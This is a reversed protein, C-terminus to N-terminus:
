ADLILRVVRRELPPIAAVARMGLRVLRRRLASGEMVARRARESLAIVRAGEAHRVAHYDGLGGETLRAALDAAGAIGLNMGRGGVPSHAHAADGALFVRGAGYRRAQRVPITFAGERRTRTVSMPVPLAALADPRNSIVRFRGAGLPVVIVAGGGELFFGQFCDSDPWGEADVDAISWRDPLDYGDFPIGLAARVDSAAGDAGIVHSFRREAGNMRVTVGGEHEELTELATAFAVRGGFRELAARLHAETRDQPLAFLREDPDPARDLRMRAIPKPGVHFIVQPVAVAEARIAAAVRSPELLRMSRPLIGVARSLPSPGDRAEIVTPVHGRRAM